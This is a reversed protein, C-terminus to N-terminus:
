KRRRGSLKPTFANKVFTEFPTSPQNNDQNYHYNSNYGAAPYPNKSFNVNRCMYM